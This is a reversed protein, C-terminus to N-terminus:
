LSIDKDLSSYIRETFRYINENLIAISQMYRRVEPKEQLGEFKSDLEKLQGALQRRNMQRSMLAKRSEQYTKLQKEVTPSKKLLQKSRQVDAFAQTKMIMEAIEFAKKEFSLSDDGEHSEMVLDYCIYEWSKAVISM